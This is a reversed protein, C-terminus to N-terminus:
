PQSQVSMLFGLHLTQVPGPQPRLLSSHELDHTVGGGRKLHLAPVLFHSGHLLAYQWKNKLGLQVMFDGSQTTCPAPQTATVLMLESGAQMASLPPPPPSAVSHQLAAPAGGRAGRHFDQQEAYYMIQVVHLAVTALALAPLLRRATCM